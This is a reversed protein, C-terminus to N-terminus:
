RITTNTKLANFTKQDQEGDFYKELAVRFEDPKGSVASFLTMCSHFKLNDPSGFIEM